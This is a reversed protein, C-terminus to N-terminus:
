GDDIVGPGPGPRLDYILRRANATEQPDDVGCHRPDADDGTNEALESINDIRSAACGLPQDLEHVGLV